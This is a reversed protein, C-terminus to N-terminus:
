EFVDPDMGRTGHRFWAAADPHFLFWAAAVQVLNIGVALVQGYIPMDALTVLLSLVGLAAFLALIWRAANNAKRSALWWLLLSFAMSVGLISFMFAHSAADSLESRAPNADWQALATEYNLAFNVLGLALSALYLQDFRIISAPRM